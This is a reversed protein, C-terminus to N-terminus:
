GDPLGAVESTVRIGGQRGDVKMGGANSFMTVTESYTLTEACVESPLKKGGCVSRQMAAYIADQIQQETCGPHAQEIEIRLRSLMNQANM